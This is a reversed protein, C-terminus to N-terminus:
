RTDWSNRMTQTSIRKGRREGSEMSGKEKGRDLDRGGKEGDGAALTAPQSISPVGSIYPQKWESIKPLNEREFITRIQTRPTTKRRRQEQRHLNHSSDRDGSKPTITSWTHTTSNRCSVDPKDGRGSQKGSSRVGDRREEEAPRKGREKAGSPHQTAASSGCARGAHRRRCPRV